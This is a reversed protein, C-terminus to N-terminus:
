KLFFQLIGFMLGAFAFTQVLFGSLVWVKFENKVKIIEEKVETIEDKLTAESNAVDERTAANPLTIESFIEIIGEAQEKSFGKALLTKYKEHSNFTISVTEM